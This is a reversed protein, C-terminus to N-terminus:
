QNYLHLQKWRRCAYMWRRNGLWDCMRTSFRRQGDHLGADLRRRNRRWWRGDFGNFEVLRWGGGGGGCGALALTTIMALTCVVRQLNM